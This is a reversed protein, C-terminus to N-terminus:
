DVILIFSPSNLDREQEKRKEEMIEILNKQKKEAVLKMYKRFDIKRELINAMLEM